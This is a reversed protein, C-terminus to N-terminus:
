IKILILSHTHANEEVLGSSNEKPYKSIMVSLPHHPAKQCESVANMKM